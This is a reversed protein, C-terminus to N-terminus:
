AAADAAHAAAAAAHAAAAARAAARAAADAAHAAAHAAALEDVSAPAGNAFREALTAAHDLAQVHKEPAGPWLVRYLPQVRRACRAAFAVRALRPLKLLDKETIEKAM